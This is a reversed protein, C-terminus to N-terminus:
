PRYVGDGENLAQSLFDPEAKKAAAIRAQVYRTIEIAIKNRRTKCNDEGRDYAGARIDDFLDDIKRTLEYMGMMPAGAERAELRSLYALINNEGRTYDAEIAMKYGERENDPYCKYNFADRMEELTKRIEKLEDM